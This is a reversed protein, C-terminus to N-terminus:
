ECSLRARVRTVQTPHWRGGDAARIGRRNLEDALARISLDSLEAFVPRMRKAFGAAARQKELGGRNLGGLKVGREKAAQLAVKTRESILRREKEALAAYIHLLFPDTDAGLDTVIFPVRHKMLGSIRTFGPHARIWGLAAANSHACAVHGRPAGALMIAKSWQPPNWADPGVAAGFILDGILQPELVSM